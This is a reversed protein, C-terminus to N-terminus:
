KARVGPILEGQQHLVIKNVFGSKSKIFEIEANWGVTRFITESEQVMKIFKQDPSSVYLENGQLSFSLTYAPTIEYDGVYKKLLALNAPKITTVPTEPKVKEAKPVAPERREGPLIYKKDYLCQVINNAIAKETEGQRSVNELLVIFDDNDEQRVEYSTFGSIDGAHEMFRHNYLTTINWGLAYQNKHPTFALDQWDKPLLRHHLLARHWKLLDGATSYMAGSAYAVSSDTLIAETFQEPGKLDYGIAKNEDALHLFNFGSHTMGCNMLIDEKVVREYSKHTIKEIVLGLLFYDSNSNAFDTGPTFALPQNQFRTLMDKKTVPKGAWEASFIPDKAYNYIGSSHTLLNRLTIRDGNPYEPLYKSLPDELGLKGKSDLQLVVEATFQRTNSGIQYITNETNKHKSRADRYGYGKALVIAGKHMVLVTGNFNDHVAYYDMLRELKEKQAMAPQIFGALLLILLVQFRYM